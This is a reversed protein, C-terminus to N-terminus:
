SVATKRGSISVSLNVITGSGTVYPYIWDGKSFTTATWGTFTTVEALQTGALAPKTATGIISFATGPTGTGAQAYTMKYIDVTGNGKVTGSNLRVAEITGDYGCEFPPYLTSGAPSSIIYTASFDDDIWIGTTGNNVLRQGAITGAPLGSSSSITGTVITGGSMKLYETDTLTGVPYVTGNASYLNGSINNYFTGQYVNTGGRQFPLTDTALPTGVVQGYIASLGMAQPTSSFNNTGGRQFPFTDATGPTGASLGTIKSDPM